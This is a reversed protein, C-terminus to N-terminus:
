CGEGIIRPVTRVSYLFDLLSQAACSPLGSDERVELRLFTSPMMGECLEGEEVRWMWEPKVICGRMVQSIVMRVYSLRNCLSVGSGLECPVIGADVDAEDWPFTAYTEDTCFVGWYFLLPM